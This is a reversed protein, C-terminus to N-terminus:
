VAPGSTTMMAIWILMAVAVVITTTALIQDFGFPPRM